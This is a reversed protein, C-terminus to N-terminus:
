VFVNPLPAVNAVSGSAVTVESVFYDVKTTNGQEVELALRCVVASGDADVDLIQAIWSSSYGTPVQLDRPNLLLEVEGAPLIVRSIGAWDGGTSGNLRMANFIVFPQRSCSLPDWCTIQPDAIRVKRYESGHSPRLFLEERPLGDGGIRRFQAIVTDAPKNYLLKVCESEPEFVNSNFPRPPQPPM